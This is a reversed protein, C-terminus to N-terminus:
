VRECGLSTSATFVTGSFGIFGVGILRDDHVTIVIQHSNFKNNLNRKSLKINDLQQM